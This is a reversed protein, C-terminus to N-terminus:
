SNIFISHEIREFSRHICSYKFGYKRINTTWQFIPLPKGINIFCCEQKFDDSIQDKLM